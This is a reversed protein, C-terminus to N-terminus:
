KKSKHTKNSNKTNKYKNAEAILWSSSQKKKGGIGFVMDIGLKQCVIAEPIDKTNKRDGGNGFILKDDKFKKHLKAISKCVTRDKDVSIMVTDVGKMNAVVYAREKDKMFPVTGKLNVQTDNNVIVCVKGLKSAHKVMDVHGKHIPNFYGSLIIIKEKKM